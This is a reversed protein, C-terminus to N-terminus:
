VNNEVSDRRRQYEQSNVNPVPESPRLYAESPVAIVPRNLNTSNRPSINSSADNNTNTDANDNINNDHSNDNSNDINETANETSTSSTTNGRNRAIRAARRFEFNKVVYYYYLNVNSIGMVRWFFYLQWTFLSCTQKWSYNDLDTLDEEHFYGRNVINTIEEEESSTLRTDEPLPPISNESAAIAPTVGSANPERPNRLTNMLLRISSTRRHGGTLSSGQISRSPQQQPQQEQQMQFSDPQELELVGNRNEANIESELRGGNNERMNQLARLIIRAKFGTNRPFLLSAVGDNEYNFLSEIDRSDSNQLTIPTYDSENRTCYDRKCIPCSARRQILWPDICPAHFVHGCLLGRVEELDELEELCIACTGSTYHLHDNHIIEEGLSETNHIKEITVENDTNGDNNGDDRSASKSTGETFAREIVEIESDKKLDIPDSPDSFINKEESDEGKIRDKNAGDNNNNENDNTYDATEINGANRNHQEDVDDEYVLYDGVNNVVEEKGGNLWDKYSQIPFLDDLEEKSLKKRANYQRRRFNYTAYLEYTYGNGVIVRPNRRESSPRNSVTENNANNDNNSVGTEQNTEAGDHASSSRRRDGGGGGGAGRGGRRGRPVYVGIGGGGHSGPIEYFALNPVRGRGPTPGLYGSGPIYANIQPILGFKSRIFYRFTFFIFLSAVVLGVALAIFFLVSSPKNSIFSNGNGSSSVNGTPSSSSFVTRTESM